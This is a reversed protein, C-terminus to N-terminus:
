VVAAIFLKHKSIIRQAEESLLGWNDVFLPTSYNGHRFYLHEPDYLIPDNVDKRELEEGLLRAAVLETISIGNFINWHLEIIYDHHNKQAVVAFRGNPFREEAYRLLETTKGSRAPATIIIRGRTRLLRAIEEANEATAHHIM